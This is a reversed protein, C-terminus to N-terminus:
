ILIIMVVKDTIIGDIESREIAKMIENVSFLKAIDAEYDIELQEVERANLNPKGMTSCFRVKEVPKSDQLDESEREEKVQEPDLVGSDIRIKDTEAKM